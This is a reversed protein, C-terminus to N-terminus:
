STTRFRIRPDIVALLSDVAANFIVVLVSYFVVLGLVLTYDRNFAGNVFMSGLGPVHFVTEVVFSGSILGATAPGLFAVVPVLANRFAHRTIVTWESLGKARATRIFDMPLVELMSGRTLRAIYAAYGAGLTLTPLIRDGPTEWGSAHFWPLILAFVLVLLPGLVFSPVCIGFMAVGMPLHDRWTNPRLAAAVGACLGCALAFLLAYVGLEFSVPFRDAIIENVTRGPYQFSPGLDFRLVNSLYRVYQVHLPDDLGYHANLREIAEAPFQREDTFPGGPALRILLFTASVALLLVPILQLLRCFLFRLM